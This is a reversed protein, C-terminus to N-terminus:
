AEIQAAAVFLDDIESPALSLATGIQDVYPSSRQWTTAEAFWIAVEGGANAVAASADDLLTKGKTKSPTRSLQIKAQARTVAVPVMAAVPAPKSFSGDNKAMWGEEIGKVKSVDRVDLEPPLMPDADFLQWVTNHQILAFM